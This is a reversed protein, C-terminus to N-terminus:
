NILKQVLSEENPAMKSEVHHRPDLKWVATYLASVIRAGPTNGLGSQQLDSSLQPVGFVVQVTVPRVFWSGPPLAKDTDKLFVPVVVAGPFRQLVMGIGGKFPQLEGTLSRRGEPFWVLSQKQKLIAAALKLGSLVARDPDIPIGQVLHSLYRRPGNKFAIGVWGAWHLNCLRSYPLAAALVFADLYSAHNPVFVVQGNAPLNERGIIQPRFFLQALVKIVAYIALQQVVEIKKLPQIWYNQQETLRIETQRPSKFTSDDAAADSLRIAEFIFDRVSALNSIASEDFEINFRHRIDLTLVVWELSDIGLDLQLSSDLRVPTGEYRETLYQWLQEAIPHDFLTLDEDPIKDLGLPIRSKDASLLSEYRERLKYRQIKGMATRSLPQSSVVIGSLRKYSALQLSREDVADHALRDIDGGGRLAVVTVDPVVVAVLKGDQQLVGIEKILPNALYHEEVQEPDIKEGGQGVILSSIRGLVHLNGNRIFGLDGTRFWGDATFADRTKQPLNRYGSFIGPGRALIEGPQSRELSVQHPAVNLDVEALPTTLPEIRLQVGPLACGVSDLHRNGPAKITLLPSTETLGYGFATQWGLGELKWAQQPDLAAGGCALLRLSPGLERHLPAFLTKGIHIGWQRCVWISFLLLYNFLIAKVPTSMLRQEITNLLATYLRPVGIIATVEGDHIARILHPGTLSEPIVIPVGLTLPYLMGVVFPYTHHLPLPLLFHDSANIIQLEVLANIQFMINGVTLPVGKPAGVTGSTYFLVAIDSDSRYPLTSETNEFNRPILQKWSCEGADDDLVRLASNVDIESARLQKAKEATTFVFKPNLDRLINQVTLDDLQADLPVVIVGAQLAALCVIIWEPQVPAFLVIYDSNGAGAQRLGMAMKKIAEGLENYSWTRVGAKQFSLIATRQMWCPLADLISQISSFNKM